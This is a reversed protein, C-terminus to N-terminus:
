NSEYTGDAIMRTQSHCFHFLNLYHQKKGRVVIPLTFNLSKKGPKKCADYAVSM